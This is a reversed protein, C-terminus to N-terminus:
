CQRRGIGHSYGTSLIIKIQYLHGHTRRYFSAFSLVHVPASLSPIRNALIHSVQILLLRSCCVTHIGCFCILKEPLLWRSSSRATLSM